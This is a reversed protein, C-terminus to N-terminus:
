GAGRGRVRERMPMTTRAPPGFGSIAVTSSNRRVSTAALENERLSPASLPIKM